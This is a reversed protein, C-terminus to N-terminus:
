SCLLLLKTAELTVLAGIVFLFIRQSRTAPERPHRSLAPGARLSRVFSGAMFFVGLALMLLKTFLGGHVLTNPCQWLFLDTKM